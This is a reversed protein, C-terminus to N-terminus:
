TRNLVIGDIDKGAVKLTDICAAVKKYSTKNKRIVLLLSDCKKAILLTAANLELEPMDVLIIDFKKKLADIEKLTDRDVVVVQLGISKCEKEVAQVITTKGESKISSTVGIVQSNVSINRLLVTLVSVVDINHELFIKGEIEALVPIKFFNEIERRSKLAPSLIYAFTLFITTLFGGLFAGAIGVKIYNTENQAVTIESSKVGSDIIVYETNPVITKMYSMTKQVILQLIEKAEIESHSRYNIQFIREGVQVVELNADIEEYEIDGAYQNLVSDLIEHGKVIYLVDKSVNVGIGEENVGAFVQVQAEFDGRGSLSGNDQKIVYEYCLYSLIGILIGIAIYRLKTKLFRFLEILDIEREHYEKIESM